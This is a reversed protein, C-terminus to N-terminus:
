VRGAGRPDTGREGPHLHRMLVDLEQWADEGLPYYFGAAAAPGLQEPRGSLPARRARVLGTERVAESGLVFAVPRPPPDIRAPVSLDSRASRVQALLSELGHRAVLRAALAPLADLPLGSAPPFGLAFTLDEEVGEATRRAHLTALAPRTPHGVVVLRTPQPARHRVLATLEHRSWPSAAPEATGWGAPPAGTLQQWIDELAGGILLDHDAPHHTRLSLLLQRGPDAASAPPASGPTTRGPDPAVDSGPETEPDASTGRVYPAALTGTAEFQGDRWRVESGSLGDYYGGRGDQVVWRNPLGSLMSRVPLTLRTGPPTVIQLAREEGATARFADALWATMAILPRDLIIVATRDTLVDVAPQAAVQGTAAVADPVTTGYADVAASRPWVAGGLRGVLRGAIVGALRDAGPAGTAARVETWWLPGEGFGDFGPGLLRAAEGAPHVLVPAEISALPRGGADSLQLVAGESGTSVLTDPGGAMLGAAVSWVDPMRETLAIVDTTM